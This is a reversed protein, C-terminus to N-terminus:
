QTLHPLDLRGFRLVPYTVGRADVGRSISAGVVGGAEGADGIRTREFESQSFVGGLEDPVILVIRLFQGDVKQVGEVLIRVPHAFLGVDFFGFLFFVFGVLVGAGFRPVRMQLAVIGVNDTAEHSLDFGFQATRPVSAPPHARREIRAHIEANGNRPAHIPRHLHRENRHLPARRGLQRDLKALIGGDFKESFLHRRQCPLTILEALPLQFLLIHHKRVNELLLNPTIVIILIM